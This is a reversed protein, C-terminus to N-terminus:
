KRSCSGPRFQREELWKLIESRIFRVNSQIKVYPMLGKQVYSYVTKVDIRLLEEVERATLLRNSDDAVRAPPATKVESTADPAFAREPLALRVLKRQNPHLGAEVAAKVRDLAGTDAAIMLVHECVVSLCKQAAAVEHQARTTLSIDCAVPPADDKTLVDITLSGDSVSKEVVVEYGHDEGWRKIFQELDENHEGGNLSPLPTGTAPQTPHDSEGAPLQVELRIRTKGGAPKPEAEEHRRKAM